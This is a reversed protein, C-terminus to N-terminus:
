CLGLYNLIMESDAKVLVSRDNKDKPIVTYVHNFAIIEPGYAANFCLMNIYNIDSGFRDGLSVYFNLGGNRKGFTSPHYHIHGNYNSPDYTTLVGNFFKKM